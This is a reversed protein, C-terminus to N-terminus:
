HKTSSWVEKKKETARKTPHASCPLLSAMKCHQM